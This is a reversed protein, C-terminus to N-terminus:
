FDGGFEMDPFEDASSNTNATTAGRAPFGASSADPAVDEKKTELAAKTPYDELVKEADEYEASNAVIESALDHKESETQQNATVSEVESRIMDRLDNETLEVVDEDNNETVESDEPEDGDNDTNNAAMVDSHIAELGDDCREALSEETLPSNATIEAIYQERDMTTSNSATSESTESNNATDVSPEAEENGPQADALGLASKFRELVERKELEGSEGLGSDGGDDDNNDAMTQTDGGAEAQGGEPSVADDTATLSVGSNAVLEPNIGCGDAVSCQAPKNPLLAVSDPEVIKEVNSRYEGDYTGAPLTEGRYQSSVNIPDGSELADRIDLAEGGLRVLDAENVVIDGRVFEGDYTANEIRGLQLEPKRNAAIPQGSEDRPHNLTPPTGNWETATEKISEEPVYGGALDMPKVFPVDKIRWGFDTEEVKNPQVSNTVLQM